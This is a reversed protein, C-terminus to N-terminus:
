TSVKFNLAVDHLKRALATRRQVQEVKKDRDSLYSPDPYRQEVYDRAPTRRSAFEALADVFLYRIDEVDQATFTEDLSFAIKTPM